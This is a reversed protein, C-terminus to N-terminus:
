GTVNEALRIQHDRLGWRCRLQFIQPKATELRATFQREKIRITLLNARRCDAATNTFSPSRRPKLVRDFWVPEYTFQRFLTDLSDVFIGVPM